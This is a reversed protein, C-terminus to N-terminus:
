SLWLAGGVSSRSAGTVSALVNQEERWRLVGILAMALAEKQNVLDTDPVFVEINLHALSSSLQQILHTNFAGGGTVLMKQPAAESFPALATEIQAVIHASFTALVDTDSLSSSSAFNFLQKSFDNSLSKPAPIKYYELCNLKKLLESDIKGSAALIGQEDYKRGMRRAYFDLLQNAPCIDFALRNEQNITVNAIGGLNLCFNFENFFLRDAIPVIPAGQGNLAVDVNRLDTISPLGTIAALSAGDGIQTSTNQPPDHFVTHGHSAIFHVKHELQHEAIFENVQKGMWRGFRTHLRLFDPVSLAAAHRLDAELATDFPICATHKIEFDWDDRVNTIEVYVMDLGDLSSGSMLGIVNYIM